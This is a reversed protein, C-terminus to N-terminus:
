EARLPLFGPTVARAIFGPAFRHIAEGYVERRRILHHDLRYILADQYHPGLRARDYASVTEYARFASEVAHVVGHGSIPDFATAAEGVAIWRDGYMGTSAAPFCAFLRHSDSSFRCADLARAITPAVTLARDAWNAPSLGSQKMLGRSTYFTAATIGSPSRGLSWWGAECAEILLTSTPQGRDSFPDPEFWRTIAFLDGARRVDAGLRRSLSRARGTADVLFEATVDREEGARGLSLCWPKRVGGTLSMLRSHDFYQVGCEAARDRLMADFAARDVNLASGEASGGYSRTVPLITSWSVSIGPSQM